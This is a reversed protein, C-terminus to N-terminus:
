LLNFKSIKQGIIKTTEHDVCLNFIVARIRTLTSCAIEKCVETSLFSQVKKRGTVIQLNTASGEKQQPLFLFISM